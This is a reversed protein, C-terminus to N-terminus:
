DLSVVGVYNHDLSGLYLNGGYETVGTIMSVDTGTPDQFMRIINAPTNEDGPHIEAVGGYHAAAPAWTRPVMMLFLRLSKGLWAPVAFIARVSSPITSPVAVYCVPGDGDISSKRQFSCDIGDLFGSIQLVRETTGAKEGKLYHKMVASEFTSTYLVYNEGKDVAVGNAMAAGTALIDVKGTEPRYRLLRGTRGGRMFEMKAAYLVDWEGTVVDQDTRIDSADSFYVHGTKPGIDVDDAFAIPSLTGDSLKVRSAVVEVISPKTSQLNCVRALGLMVDAYYLCGKEDFKGGLQRGMGLDAVETAKATMINTATTDNGNDTAGKEAQPKFDTLSVLKANENMIYMTGKGDFMITEPNTLLPQNTGRGSGGNDDM